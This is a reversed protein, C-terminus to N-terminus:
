TAHRRFLAAVVGSPAALTGLILPTRGTASHQVGNGNLNYTVGFTTATARALTTPTPNYQAQLLTAGAPIQMLQQVLANKDSVSKIKLRREVTRVKAALVSVTAAGQPLGPAGPSKITMSWVGAASLPGVRLTWSKLTSGSYLADNWALVTSTGDFALRADDQVSNAARTLVAIEPPDLM